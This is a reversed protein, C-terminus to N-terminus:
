NGEVITLQKYIQFEKEAEEKNDTLMYIEGLRLHAGADDPALEIAKLYAERAKEYDDLLRYVFGMEVYAQTLDPDESVAKQFAEIASQLNQQTLYAQGQNFYDAASQGWCLGSFTMSLALVIVVLLKKMAVRGKM